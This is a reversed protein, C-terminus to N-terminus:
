EIRRLEDKVDPFSPPVRGWKSAFAVEQKGCKRCVRAVTVEDDKRGQWVAHAYAWYHQCKKTM